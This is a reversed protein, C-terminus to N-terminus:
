FSTAAAVVTKGTGGKGSLVVLQKMAEGGTWRGRRGPPSRARLRHREPQSRWLVGTREFRRLQWPWVRVGRAVADQIRAFEPWAGVGLAGADPVLLGAEGELIERTGGTDMAAVPVGLAMAELLVTPLGDRNGDVGTVCPAALVAAGVWISKKM